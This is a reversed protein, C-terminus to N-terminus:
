IDYSAYGWSLSFGEFFFTTYFGEEVSLAGESLAEFVEAVLDEDELEREVESWDSDFGEFDEVTVSVSDGYEWVSLDDEATALLDMVMEYTMM